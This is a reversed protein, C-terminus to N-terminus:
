IVQTHSEVRTVGAVSYAARIASEQENFSHVSGNLVVTGGNKTEISLKDADIVASRVFTDHIKQKVDGVTPRTPVTIQNTVGRVGILSSVMHRAHERQFEWPVAGDLTLWKDEVKVTVTDRPLSADWKLINLAAAVIEADTRQHLKPIDVRLEEALGRVGFVRKVAHEAAIKEAYTRVMGTMTVVGNKTGVSIDSADLSPDFTLEDFIDKTVQVDTKTM